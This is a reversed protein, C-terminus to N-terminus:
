PINELTKELYLWQQEDKPLGFRLSSPRKFLRTLIGQRALSHHIHQAHQNKIWHFLDTQGNASEITAKRVEDAATMNETQRSVIMGVRKKAM